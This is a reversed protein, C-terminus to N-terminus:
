GSDATLQLGTLRAVGSYVNFRNGRLFGALTLNYRQAMQVALSSPAGVAVIAPIGAMLAKQILEFSARGSLLMITNHLPLSAHLFEAGILKDVANHRGVDERLALLEGSLSFLAAAHLGGTREFVTQAERLLGPLRRIVDPDISAPSSPLTFQIRSRLSEVSAKGCVGCSSSIYFHRKLQTSDFQSQPDLEIVVTNCDKRMSSPHIRVVQDPTQLLGESFLFGAALEADHGPTRMTIAIDKETSVGRESFNLRIQLPEEVALEDQETCVTSDVFREIPVPVVRRGQEAPVFPRKVDSNPCRDTM